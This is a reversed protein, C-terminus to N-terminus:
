LGMVSSTFVAEGLPTGDSVALKVVSDLVECAAQFLLEIDLRPVPYDYVHRHRHFAEDRDVGARSYASGVHNDKSPKGSM